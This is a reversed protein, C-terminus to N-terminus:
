YIFNSDSDKLLPAKVDKESLIPNRIGWDVGIEPDNFRISRDCDPAYYDDVKYQVEVNDTLSLFGHAFGKPILLQKKNEETLEVAVWNKYTPSGKRIDVAVDLIKGKTCRVLKTQAKPNIQFHLGRLTGKEASFSHNDQIFEIDIGLEKFKRKSYTETFWGRHDGFVKPELIYVGDIDTKIIKM